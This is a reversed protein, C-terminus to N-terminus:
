APRAPGLFTDRNHLERNSTPAHKHRTHPAHTPTNCPEPNTTHNAGHMMARTVTVETCGALKPTHLRAMYEYRRRTLNDRSRTSCLRNRQSQSPLKDPSGFYTTGPKAFNRRRHGLSLARQKSTGWAKWAHQARSSEPTQIMRHPCPVRCCLGPRSGPTQQICCAELVTTTYQPRQGTLTIALGGVKKVHNRRTKNVSSNPEHGHRCPLNHGDTTCCM